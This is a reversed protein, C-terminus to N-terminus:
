SARWWRSSRSKKPLRRLPAAWRPRVEGLEIGHGGGEGALTALCVHTEVFWCGAAAACGFFGVQRGLDTTPANCQISLSPICWTSLPRCAQRQWSKTVILWTPVLLTRCIQVLLGRCWCCWAGVLQHAGFCWLVLAGFCWLPGLLVRPMEIEGAPVFM